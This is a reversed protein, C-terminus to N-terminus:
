EIRGLVRYIAAIDDESLGEGAAARFADRARAVAGLELGQERAEDAVLGLDKVLNRIPVDSAGLAGRAILPANRAFMKSQGWSKGILPILAELDLGCRSALLLAECCALTNVGVLAQNVLKAATGSGSGGLHVVPEGLAQFVPLMRTTAGRDGGVMITLAGSRAGTPGGSVPADLFLAGRSEAEDRIQRSTALDVTSHDVLIQGRKAAAVVGDDGLFVERSAAVDALSALVADVKGTLEAVTGAPHAGKAELARVKKATRNYVLLEFGKELLRAAMPMGMHGLGIFGIKM